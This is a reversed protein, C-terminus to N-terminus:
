FVNKINGCLSMGIYPSNKANSILNSKTLIFDESVSALIFSMKGKTIFDPKQIGLIKSPNQCLLECLRFIDIYGPMLLYTCVACFVTQLGIAGETSAIINYSKGESSVPTHDSDICDITGDSIAKIVAAKDDASRLPPYVKANSGIFVTDEDTFSFYCPSTSCSLKVGSNKANKILEISEKTSIGRIHLRCNTEKALLIYEYVSRAEIYSPECPLKLLSATRGRTACSNQFLPNKQPSAILLRNEQASKKMFNELEEINLTHNSELLSINLSDVTHFNCYETQHKTDSIVLIDSYGGWKACMETSIDDDPSCIRTYIDTFMPLIYDGGANIQTSSNHNLGHGTEIIEGKAEDYLIDLNIVRNNSQPVKANKILIM